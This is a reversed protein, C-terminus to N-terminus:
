ESQRATSRLEGVLEEKRRKWHFRNAISNRAVDARGNTQFAREIAERTAEVDGFPVLFGADGIATRIGQVDAGVPTCGCLMAECLSNPLGERFSLQCYVQARQYWSVLEDQPVPKVLTVNPPADAALREYADGSVGVVVFETDDFGSAASVFTDLGKLRARNWKSEAAVTLVLRRESAPEPTFREPDYGTPVTRIHDGSVGLNRQADRKLGDDVTLVTDAHELVYRIRRADTSDLLGGYEFQPVHAVEFGGVTVVTPTGVVEAVRLGVYAHLNAFWHYVVDARAIELIMRSFGKVDKALTRLQRNYDVEVHTVRFDKELLRVDKRVYPQPTGVSLVRIKDAM